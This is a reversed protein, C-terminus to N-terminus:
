QELEIWSQFSLLHFELRLLNSELKYDHAATLQSKPQPSEDKNEASGNWFSSIITFSLNSISECNYGGANSGRELKISWQEQISVSVYTVCIEVWCNDFWTYPARSWEWYLVVQRNNQYLISRDFNDLCFLVIEWVVAIGSVHTSKLTAPDSRVLHCPSSKNFNFLEDSCCWGFDSFGNRKFAM